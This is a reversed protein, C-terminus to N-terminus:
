KEETSRVNKLDKEGQLVLDFFRKWLELLKQKAKLLYPSSRNRYNSGM